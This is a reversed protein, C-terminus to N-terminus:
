DVQVTAMVSDVTARRVAPDVKRGFLFSIDITHDGLDTGYAEAWLNRRSVWGSLHFMKQGDIMVPKMVKPDNAYFIELSNRFEITDKLSESFGLNDQVRVALTDAIVNGRHSATFGTKRQDLIVWDDPARMSMGDMEILEGTAAEAGSPTSSPTSSPSDSPSTSTSTGNTPATSPTSASGAPTGPGSDSDSCGATLVCVVVASILVPVSRYM